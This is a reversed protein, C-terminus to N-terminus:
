IMSVRSDSDVSSGTAMVALSKLSVLLAKIAEGFRSNNHWDILETTSITSEALGYGLNQM